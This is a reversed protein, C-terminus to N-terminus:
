ISSEAIVEVMYSKTAEEFTKSAQKAWEQPGQDRFQDAFIGSSNVDHNYRALDPM